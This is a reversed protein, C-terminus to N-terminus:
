PPTPTPNAVPPLSGLYLWIAKLEDDSMQGIAKWPMMEADLNRGAPTKGTRMTQIFQEETWKGLDGGPTLNLGAGPEDGGAMNEGHCLGCVIGLYKGYEATVGPVPEPPRPADHDILSAPLSHPDTLIYWRFLPGIRNESHESDVPALSRLYAIIAALDTDSLANYHESPMAIVSSGDPELGYRIARVFDEDTFEAGVSGAGSTLNPVVLRGALWGEDWVDGALNGGHCDICFARTTVIIRGREVTQADQPIDFMEFSVTYTKNIQQNTAYYLALLGVIGLGIIAILLIGLWQFIKGVKIRM